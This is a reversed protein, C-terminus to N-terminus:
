VAEPRRSLTWDSDWPIDRTRAWGRTTRIMLSETRPWRDGLNKLDYEFMELCQPGTNPGISGNLTSVRGTSHERHIVNVARM